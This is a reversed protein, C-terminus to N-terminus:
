KRYCIGLVLLRPFYLISYTSFTKPVEFDSASIEFDGFSSDTPSQDGDGHGGGRNGQKADSDYSQPNGRDDTDNNSPEPSDMGALLDDWSSKWTNGALEDEQSATVTKKKEVDNRELIEKMRDETSMRRSPEAKGFSKAKTEKSRKIPEPSLGYDNDDIDDNEISYDYINGSPKGRNAPKGRSKPSVEPSFAYHDSNYTPPSQDSQDDDYVSNKNGWNHYGLGDM